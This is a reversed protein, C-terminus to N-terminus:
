MFTFVHVRLATLVALRRGSPSWRADLPEGDLPVSRNTGTALDALQVRGSGALAVHRGSPSVALCKVTSRVEHATLGVADPTALETFRDVSRRTAFDLRLGEQAFVMRLTRAAGPGPRAPRYIEGLWTITGEGIRAHEVCLPQESFAAVKVDESSVGGERQELEHTEPDVVVLRSAAVVASGALTAGLGRVPAPVLRIKRNAGPEVGLVILQTWESIAFLTEGSPSWAMHSLPGSTLLSGVGRREHELTAPALMDDVPGTEAGLARAWLLARGAEDLEHARAAASAARLWASADHAKEADRLLARLSEDVGLM